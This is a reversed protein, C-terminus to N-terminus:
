SGVGYKGVNSTLPPRLRLAASPVQWCRQCATRNVRHNSPAAVRLFRPGPGMSHLRVGGCPPNWHLNTLNRYM